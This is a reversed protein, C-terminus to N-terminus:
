DKGHHMGHSGAKLSQIGEALAKSHGATYAYWTSPCVGQAQFEDALASSSNPNLHQWDGQVPDTRSCSAPLQWTMLLFLLSRVRSLLAPSRMGAKSSVPFELHALCSWLATHTHTTPLIFLSLYVWRKKGRVDGGLTPSNFHKISWCASATQQTAKPTNPLFCLIGAWHINPLAHLYGLTSPIWIRTWPSYRPLLVRVFFRVPESLPRLRKCFMYVYCWIFSDSTHHFILLLPFHHRKWCTFHATKSSTM